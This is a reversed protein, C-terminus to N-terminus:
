HHKLSSPKSNNYIEYGMVAFVILYELSLIWGNEKVTTESYAFYSLIITFSWVLPFKYHTFISLGILPIIYWPHVTTSVFYYCCFVWLLTTILSDSEVRKHQWFWILQLGMVGLIILGMYHLVSYGLLTKLLNFFSANFEFNNFWLGITSAYNQIFEVSVFPVFLLALLLTLVTSIGISNKWGIHKFLFPLVVLPFLKVAVAATLSVASRYWRKQHILYISMILFCFLLGEFHLNGTLEIIILPNLLYWYIHRQPLQLLKLLRKGYYYVGFDACIIIIRMTVVAGLIHHKSLWAAIIFPLQHLPPYNSFHSASLLGMGKHLETMQPIQILQNNILNDPSYLYPSIGQVMLRGDWIFRYFDQSLNPLSGLFVLRFVIALYGLTKHSVLKSNGILILYTSFLIAYISILLAHDHRQLIYAWVAYAAISLSCLLPLGFIKRISKHSNM